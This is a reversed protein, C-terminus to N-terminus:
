AVAEAQGRDAPEMALVRDRCRKRRRERITITPYPGKQMNCRDVEKRRELLASEQILRQIEMLKAMEQIRAMSLLHILQHTVELPLYLLSKYGRRLAIVTM